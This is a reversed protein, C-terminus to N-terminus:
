GHSSGAEAGRTWPSGREKADGERLTTILGWCGPRVELRTGGCCPGLLIDGDLDVLNYRVKHYVDWHHGNGGRDSKCFGWVWGLCGMGVADPMFADM